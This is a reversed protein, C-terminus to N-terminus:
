EESSSSSSNSDSSESGSDSESSEHAQNRKQALNRSRYLQVFSPAAAPAEEKKKPNAKEEAAAEAKAADNLVKEVPAPAKVHFDPDEIVHDPMNATWTEAATDLPLRKQGNYRAKWASHADAVERAASAELNAYHEKVHLVHAKHAKFAAAQRQREAADNVEMRGKLVEVMDQSAKEAKAADDLKDQARTRYMDSFIEKGLADHHAVSAAEAADDARSEAWTRQAESSTDAAKPKLVAAAEKKVDEATPLAEKIAEKAQAAAEAGEAGAADGAAEAAAGADGETQVYSHHHHHHRQVASVQEITVAGVLAAVILSKSLKM